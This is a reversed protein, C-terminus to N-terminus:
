RMGGPGRRGEGGQGGREGRQGRREEMWERVQARQEETLVERIEMMSNFRLESMEDRLQMMQQRQQRIDESSANSGMVTHMTDRQQKMRERLTELQPQYRDRIAQISNMQDSTLDLREMWRMQGREGPGRQSMQIERPRLDEANAYSTTVTGLVLFGLLGLLAAKRTRHNNHVPHNFHTSNAM